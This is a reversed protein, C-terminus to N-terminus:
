SRTMSSRFPVSRRMPRRISWWVVARPADMLRTCCMRTYCRALPACTIRSIKGSATGRLTALMCAGGAVAVWIVVVAEVVVAVLAVAGVDEVAVVRFDAETVVEKFAWVRDAAAMGELTAGVQLRAELLVEATDAAVLEAVAAV